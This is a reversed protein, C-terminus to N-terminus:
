QTASRPGSRVVSSGRPGQLPTMKPSPQPNLSTLVGHPATVDRSDKGTAQVQKGKGKWVLLPGSTVEARVVANVESWEYLIAAFMRACYGLSYGHQDAFHKIKQFYEYEFWWPGDAALLSPAKSLDIFRYLKTYRTVVSQRPWIGQAAAPYSGGWYASNVHRQM